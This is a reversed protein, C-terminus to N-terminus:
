HGHVDGKPTKTKEKEKEKSVPEKSPTESSGCRAGTICEYAKKMQDMMEMQSAETATKPDKIHIEHLDIAKKLWQESCTLRCKSVDSPEGMMGGMMGTRMSMMKQMNEKMQAMEKMMKKKEAPKAGMMMKEQMGMMDMMMQMMNQMMMGQGPMQQMMPCNMMPMQQGEGMMGQGEGQQGGMMGMQAYAPINFVFFVMFVIMWKKM